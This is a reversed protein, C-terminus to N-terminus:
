ILTSDLHVRSVSQHHALVFGLFSHLFSIFFSKFSLKFLRSRSFKSITLRSTLKLSLLLIQTQMPALQTSPTAAKVLRGNIRGFLNYVLGIVALQSISRSCRGSSTTVLTARQAMGSLSLLEGLGLDLLETKSIPLFKRANGDGFRSELRLSNFLSFEEEPMTSVKETLNRITTTYLVDLRQTDMVSKLDGSELSQYARTGRVPRLRIDLINILLERESEKTCTM